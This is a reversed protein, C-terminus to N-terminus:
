KGTAVYVLDDRLLGYRRVTEDLLTAAFEDVHVRFGSEEFTMALADLLSTDDDVILLTHAM